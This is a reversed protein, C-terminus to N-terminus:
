IQFRREVLGCLEAPGTRRHHISDAPCKGPSFHGIRPTSAVIGPLNAQTPATVGPTESLVSLTSVASHQPARNGGSMSSAAGPACGLSLKPVSKCCGIPQFGVRPQANPLRRPIPLSFIHSARAAMVSVAATPNLM